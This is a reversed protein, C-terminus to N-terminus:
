FGEIFLRYPDAGSDAWTGPNNEAGGDDFYHFFEPSGEPIVDLPLEYESWPAGLRDSGAVLGWTGPPLEFSAPLVTDFSAPIQDPVHYEPSGTAYGVADSLDLTQPLRTVPDLPVVAIFVRQNLCFQCDSFLFAGLGTVTHTRTTTFRVGAFGDGNILLAPEARRPGTGLTASQFFIQPGHDSKCPADETATSEASQSSSGPQACAAVPFAALVLRRLLQM